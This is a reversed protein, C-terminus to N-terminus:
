TNAHCKSLAAVTQRWRWTLWATTAAIVLLMLTSYHIDLKGFELIIREDREPEMNKYDIRSHSFGSTDFLNERQHFGFGGDRSEAAIVYHNQYYYIVNRCALSDCWAWALFIMVFVSLWLSRSRLIFRPFSPKPPMNLFLSLM